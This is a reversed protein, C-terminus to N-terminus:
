HSRCRLYTFILFFLTGDPQTIKSTGVLDLDMNEDRSEEPLTM